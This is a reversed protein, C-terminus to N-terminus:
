IYPTFNEIWVPIVYKVIKNEKKEYLEEACKMRNHKILVDELIGRKDFKLRLMRQSNAIGFEQFVFTFSKNALVWVKKGGQLSSATEYRVGKGRLEDTFNFEGVIMIAISILSMIVNELIEPKKRDDRVFDDTESRENNEVKKEGKRFNTM